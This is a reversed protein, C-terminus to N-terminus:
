GNQLTGKFVCSVKPLQLIFFADWKTYKLMHVFYCVQSFNLEIPRQFQSIIISSFVGKDCSTTHKWISSKPVEFDLESTEFDVNKTSFNSKKERFSRKKLPLRKEYYKM